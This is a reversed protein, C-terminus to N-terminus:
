LLDVLSPNFFYNFIKPPAAAVGRGVQKGGRCTHSPEKNEGRNPISKIEAYNLKMGNKPPQETTLGLQKCAVRNLLVETTNSAIHVIQKVVTNKGELKIDSIVAGIIDM